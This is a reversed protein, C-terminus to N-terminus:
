ESAATIWCSSSFTVDLVAGEEDLVGSRSRGLFGGDAAVGGGVGPINVIAICKQYYCNIVFVGKRGNCYQNKFLAYGIVAMRHVFYENFPLAVGNFFRLACVM